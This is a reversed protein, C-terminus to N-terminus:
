AQERLKAIRDTKDKKSVVEIEPANLLGFSKAFAEKDIADLNFVSRDKMLHISKLYSAVARKALHQLDKNEANMKELVPQITLKAKSKTGLKKMEIQRKDLHSLFAEESPMLFLLANGKAKYRATRGVRHVYTSVDEPV